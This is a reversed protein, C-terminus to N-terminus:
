FYKYKERAFIDLIIIFIFIGIFIIGSIIFIEGFSPFITPFLIGQNDLFNSLSNHFIKGLFKIFIIGFIIGFVALILPEGITM